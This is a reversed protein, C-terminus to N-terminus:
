EMPKVGLPAAEAPAEGHVVVVHNHGLWHEAAEATGPWFLTFEM